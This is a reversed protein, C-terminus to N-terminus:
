GRWLRMGWKCLKRLKRVLDIRIAVHIHVSITLLILIPTSLYLVVSSNRDQIYFLSSLVYLCTFLVMLAHVWSGKAAEISASILLYLFLLLYCIFRLLEATDTNYQFMNMCHKSEIPNYEVLTVGM